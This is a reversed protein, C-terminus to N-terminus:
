AGAETAVQVFRGFAEALEAFAQAFALHSRWRAADGPDTPVIGSEAAMVSRRWEDRVRLCDEKTVVSVALKGFTILKLYHQAIPDSAQQLNTLHEDVADPGATIARIVSRVKM